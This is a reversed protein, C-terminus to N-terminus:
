AEAVESHYSSMYKSDGGEETNLSYYIVVSPADVTIKM